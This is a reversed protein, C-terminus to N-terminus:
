IISNFIIRASTKPSYKGPLGLCLHANIGLSKCTDFDTGGPKSAIDIITTDKKVNNLITDTLVLSPITNFIFDYDCAQKALQHFNMYNHGTEFALIQQSKKRACVTVNANLHKLRGAIASGCKGYGLVLCNSAHLNVDSHSIAEAITGEATAISNYLEFSDDDMFDICAIGKEQCQNRFAEDLCGGYIIHHSNLLSLVEDLDITETNSFLTRRDKSFPIPFVIINAHDITEKLTLNDCIGTVGFTSVPYGQAKFEAALYNQRLDGGIICYHNDAKKKM